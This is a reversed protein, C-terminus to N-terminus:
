KIKKPFPPRQGRLVDRLSNATIENEVTSAAETAMLEMAATALALRATKVADPAQHGSPLPRLIRTARAASIRSVERRADETLTADGIRQHFATELQLKLAEAAGTKVKVKSAVGPDDARRDFLVSQFRRPMDGVVVQRNYNVPSIGGGMALIIGGELDADLVTGTESM